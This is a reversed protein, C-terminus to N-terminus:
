VAQRSKGLWKRLAVLLVGVGALAWVSPEPVPVIAPQRFRPALAIDPFFGTTLFVSAIDTRGFQDSPVHSWDTGWLTSDWAVQQVYAYQYAPVTPVSVLGVGFGGLSRFLM